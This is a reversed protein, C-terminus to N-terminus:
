RSRRTWRSSSRRRRRRRPAAEATLDATNLASFRDETALLHRAALDQAERPPDCKVVPPPPPRRRRRRRAAQPTVCGALGLAALAVVAALAARAAPTSPVEITSM